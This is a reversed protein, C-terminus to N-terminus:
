VIEVEADLSIHEWKVSKIPRSMRFQHHSPLYQCSIISEIPLVYTLCYVHITCNVLSIMPYALLIIATCPM